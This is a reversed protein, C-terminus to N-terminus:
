NPVAHSFVLEDNVRIVTAVGNRGKNKAHYMARDAVSTMMEALHREPPRGGNGKVALADVVGISCTIRIEEDGIKIPTGEVKMRLREAILLAKEADQNPLLIVFEEGGYRFLLDVANDERKAEINSRISSGVIQAFSRLVMDGVAHGYRHDDNIRKFHDIDVMLIAFNDNKKLKGTMERLQGMLELRRPLGTLPDFRADVITSLIRSAEAIFVGVKEISEKGALSSKRVAKKDGTLTLVGLKKSETKGDEGKEVVMLPVSCHYGHCEWTEESTFSIDDPVMTATFLRGPPLKGKKRPVCIQMHGREFVDKIMDNPPGGRADVSFGDTTLYHGLAAEGDKKLYISAEKAGIERMLAIVGDPISTSRTNVACAFRYPALELPTFGKKMHRRANAKELADHIAWATKITQEVIPAAISSFPQGGAGHLLRGGTRAAIQKKGFM